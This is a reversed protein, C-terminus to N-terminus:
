IKITAASHSHKAKQPQVAPTVTQAENLFVTPVACNRKIQRWSLQQQWSKQFSISYDLDAWILVIWFSQALTKKLWNENYLQSKALAWWIPNLHLWVVYQKKSYIDVHLKSMANGGWIQLGSNLMWWFRVCLRPFARVHFHHLSEEWIPKWLRLMSKHKQLKSQTQTHKMALHMEAM